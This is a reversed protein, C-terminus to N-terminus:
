ATKNLESLITKLKSKISNFAPVNEPGVKSPGSPTLYNQKVIEDILETLIDVLKNGKVMPELDKSGANIKGNDTTLNIDRGNTKINVDGGVVADIGLKNDISMGGDSIFGYNKKSFFMMEANKSSLIIRGSNILIQDGVLKSPFNKFAVPNQSFDTNGKDDNSGPSFQLEYKDSTLAIVSGDRNLDEEVTVAIEKKRSTYSESNRIITVPSFVNNTNNYGSFRISQGFRSEILSDGEYLKLKHIGIESTFYKGFGDYKKSNDKNTKTIGTNEVKSYNQNKSESSDPKASYNKKIYEPDANVNPSLETGIRKYLLVGNEGPLIQVSENRVPLQKFNKESPYAIPLNEENDATKGTYRFEIAGIEATTKVGNKILPHTEDLIVSYVVGNGNTSADKNLQTFSSAVITANQIPM